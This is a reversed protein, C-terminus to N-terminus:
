NRRRRAILGVAGLGALMLAYSGPEPVASVTLKLNDIALGHDNGVDNVEAWRIWLTQGASWSLGTVSGGLGTHLGAVNGDVVSGSAAGGVVPSTFDFNGGPTVWAATAYSSGLGYQLVMTQASTSGGNRWQEGDFSLKFGDLTGGSNNTFSVAIYGAFSGSGVGGLARDSGTGFSYFAGNNASGTGARYTPTTGSGTQILTWDALSFTNATGTSALTDFSQSYSFVSSTVSVSALSPLAVAALTAVLALSRMSM